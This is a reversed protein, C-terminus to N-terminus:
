CGAFRVAAVIETAVGFVPSPIWGFHNKAIPSAHTDTIRNKLLSLLTTAFVAYNFPPLNSNLNNSKLFEM